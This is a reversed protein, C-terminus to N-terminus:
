TPAVWVVPSHNISLHCVSTHCWPLRDAGTQTIAWAKLSLAWFFTPILKTPQACPLLIQTEHEKCLLSLKGMYCEMRISRQSTMVKQALQLPKWSHMRRCCPSCKNCMLVVILGWRKCGWVQGLTQSSTLSLSLTRLPLSVVASFVTGIEDKRSHSVHVNTCYRRRRKTIGMGTCMRLLCKGRSPQYWHGSWRTKQQDCPFTTSLWPLIIPVNMGTQPVFSMHLFCYRDGFPGQALLTVIYHKKVM